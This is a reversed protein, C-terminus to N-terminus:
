WPTRGGPGIFLGAGEGTLAYQVPLEAGKEPTVAGYGTLDTKVFGPCVSNVTVNTGKLEESLRVTLM